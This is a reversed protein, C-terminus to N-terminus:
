ATVRGHSFLGTSPIGCFRKAVPGFPFSSRCTLIFMEASDIKWNGMRSSLPLRINETREEFVSRYPDIAMAVSEGPFTLIMRCHLGPHPESRAILPFLALPPDHVLM